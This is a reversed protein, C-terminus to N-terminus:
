SGQCAAVTKGDAPPPLSGNRRSRPQASRLLTAAHAAGSSPRSFPPPPAPTIPTEARRPFSPPPGPEGSRM